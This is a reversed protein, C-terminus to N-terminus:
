TKFTNSKSFAMEYPVFQRLFKPFPKNSQFIFTRIEKKINLVFELAFLGEWAQNRRRSRERVEM